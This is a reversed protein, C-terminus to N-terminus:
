SATVTVPCTTTLVTGDSKTLSISVTGSGASTGTVVGSDSVTFGSGTKSYTLSSYLPQLITDNPMVLKVPIQATEGSAIAIGSGIVTLAVVSENPDGCPAYVYFMLNEADDGCDACAPVDNDPTVATWNYNTTTNTTQNGDLGADGNLMARPVEVYLYGQLTGQGAQGNQKAYVGWKQRISVVSPNASASMGLVQASANVGYFFVDYSTGDTATFNQIVGTELNVYYNAGQYSTSGHVRVQCWGMTDSAPQSYAKALTVDSTPITLTTGTAKIVKCLPVVGGYEITGGSLLARQHLSFAASTYTGTLRTTHPIMGVLQNQFGGTVESLEFTYNLAVDNGVNDYGIINGTIPDFMTQEVVGQVILRKDGFNFIAM